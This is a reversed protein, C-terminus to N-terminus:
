QLSTVNKTMPTEMHLLTMFLNIIFYKLYTIFYLFDNEVGWTTKLITM